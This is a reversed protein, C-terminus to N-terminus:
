CATGEESRGPLKLARLKSSLQTNLKLCVLQQFPRENCIIPRRTTEDNVTIDNAIRRWGVLDGGQDEHLDHALAAHDQGAENEQQTEEDRIIHLGGLCTLVM